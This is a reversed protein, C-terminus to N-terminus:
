EAQLTVEVKGTGVAEQLGEPDDVKGLATYGYSTSFTEYFLVLCDSGYLM